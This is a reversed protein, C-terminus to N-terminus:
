GSHPQTRLTSNQIGMTLDDFLEALFDFRKCVDNEYQARAEMFFFSVTLLSVLLIVMPTQSFISM